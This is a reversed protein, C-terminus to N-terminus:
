TGDAAAEFDVVVSAPEAALPLNQQDRVGDIGGSPDRDLRAFLPDLFPQEPGLEAVLEITTHAAEACTLSDILSRSSTSDNYDFWGPRV